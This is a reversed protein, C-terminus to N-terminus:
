DLFVNDDDDVFTLNHKLALERGYEIAEEENHFQKRSARSYDDVEYDWCQAVCINSHNTPMYVIIYIM